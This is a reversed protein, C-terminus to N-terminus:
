SYSHTPPKKTFININYPYTTETCIGNKAASKIDTRIYAGSDDHVTGEMERENYYLFLRSPNIFKGSVLCHNHDYQGCIANATCSGLSLQNYVTSQKDRLDVMKPLDTKPISASFKFDRVDPMDPKWNLKFNM